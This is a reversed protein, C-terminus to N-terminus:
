RICMFLRDLGVAVGSCDPFNKMAHFFSEPVAHAPKEEHKRKKNEIEFNEQLQKLDSIESCGNCLEKGQWYIEFRESYISHPIKKSLVSTSTPFDKVVYAIDPSFSPEIKEVMLKFFLDEWTDNSEMQLLDKELIVSALSEKTRYKDLSFGLVEWYLEEVTIEKFHIKKHTILSFLSKTAQIIADYSAGVKYFELMTFEKGHITTDPDDRFCKAIQYIDCKAATLLQKMQMEPSTHLEWKQRSGTVKLPDITSEFAGTTVLSATSVEHYGHEEFFKRITKLFSSWKKIQEVPNSHYRDEDLNM